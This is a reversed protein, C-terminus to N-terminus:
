AIVEMTNYGYNKIALVSGDTPTIMEGHVDQYNQKESRYNFGHSTERRSFDRLQVDFQSIPYGKASLNDAVSPLIGILATKANESNVFLTMKSENFHQECEMQITGLSGAEMTITFNPSSLPNATIIAGTLRHILNIKAIGGLHGDVIAMPPIAWPALPAPQGLKNKLTSVSISSESPFPNVSVPLKQRGSENEDLNIPLTQGATQSDSTRAEHGQHDSKIFVIKSKFSGQDHSVSLMGKSEPVIASEISRTIKLPKKNGEEKFSESKGSVSIIPNLAIPRDQITNRVKGKIGPARPDIFKIENEASTTSLPSVDISSNLCGPSKPGPKILSYNEPTRAIVPATIGKQNSPKDISLKDLGLDNQVHIRPQSNIEIQSNQEAIPKFGKVIQDRIQPKRVQQFDGNRFEPERIGEKIQQTKTISATHLPSVDIKRIITKSNEPKKIISSSNQVVKGTTINSKISGIKSKVVLTSEVPLHNKILGIQKANGQRIPNGARTAKPGKGAILGSNKHGPKQGTSADSNILEPGFSANHTVAQQTSNSTNLFGKGESASYNNHILKAGAPIHPSGKLCENDNKLPKSKFNSDIELELTKSNGSLSIKATAPQSQESTSFSATHLPSVDIKRIITKSNEPKKIISSSNQVVKGTTINSKISGIKSKVVLTSEVPLHNKILGIQKANGQRIPNGARTAKPGKGAILGSNKHGPKQGTSADSNILEPGFSANHTVAQQTSNSTNLFGKGESASYNNHILKAGAPIHPSGKLCENDNKLPKSKFNSDIELELTKSNGSLSIKATAPLSQESTSFATSRGTQSLKQFLLNKSFHNATEKECSPQLKVSIKSILDGFTVGLYDSSERTKAQRNETQPSGILEIAKNNKM